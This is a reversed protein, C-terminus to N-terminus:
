EGPILYELVRALLRRACVESIGLQAGAQAYSLGDVKVYLLVARAKPPLREVAARFSADEEEPTNM